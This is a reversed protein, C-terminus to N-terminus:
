VTQMLEQLLGNVVTLMKSNAQYAQQYKTLNVMEEDLSVGSISERATNAQHLISQRLDLDSKSAARRMGIDGVIDGYADAPSRAGGVVKGNALGALLTANSGDGPLSDISAAAAIHDPRGAVDASLTILQGASASTAPIDFLNYGSQGDQAVGAAHQANLAAAVDYVFNDFKVAVEALDGDRAQKVAALTGGTLSSTIDGPMESSGTRQALFTLNGDTDLGVSLSRTMSGEVLTTNGAQVTVTGNDGSIVRINVIDALGLLVKNRQDVLGAADRGNMRAQAIQQNLKALQVAQKNAEQALKEAKSYLNTRQAAISRAIENSRRAFQDAAKLVAQRSTTDTPNASLKQFVSFVGNLSSGLGTGASDNFVNELSGLNTDLESAGSKLGSASYVDNDVYVDTVQQQGQIQVGPGAQTELVAVRRAYQPTNANSVNQGTVNLGFSQATLGDSAVNLLGFLGTM